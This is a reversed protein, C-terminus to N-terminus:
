VDRHEFRYLLAAMQGRTVPELPGYRTASIGGTIEQEQLWRVAMAYPADASVDDFGAPATVDPSGALRHLFLAMQARTVSAGPDYRTATVGGTIAQGTLWRVATAYHADARVDEFDLPTSTAPEGALRHLFAAMQARTVERSPGYTNPGVGSTIENAALWRVPTFYHDGHNVDDFRPVQTFSWRVEPQGPAIVSATHDGPALPASSMVLVANEGALIATGTPGYIRDTSTFNLATVVCLDPGETLTRGSPLRLTATTGEAPPEPLMAILPMGTSFAGFADGCPETPDPLEGSFRDIVNAAGDGPFLVPQSPLAGTPDLGRIIDLGARFGDSAFAAETLRPRLIGIAHFPAQMWGEIAVLETSGSGLNSSRGAIDGAETYWPSDPNQTHANAYRGVRYSSPTQALYTLHEAIGASWAPRARVPALGSAARYANMAGLWDDAPVVLRDSPMAVADRPFDPDATDAPTTPNTADSEAVAPTALLSMAVALVLLALLPRSM